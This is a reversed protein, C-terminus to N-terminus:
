GAGVALEGPNEAPESAARPRIALV